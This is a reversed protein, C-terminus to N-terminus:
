ARLAVLAAALTLPVLLVGLRSYTAISPAARAARAARLWLFASLSGSVALNPGLDLGLLLAQAHPAPQASFLAAAPLNNLLVSGGAAIAATAWAGSAALLDAPGNWSRAITGLGVAVAFLLGLVHAELRPRLRRFGAAALGVALVPLAANRLALEAAGAALAAAAGLGLHLPPPEIQGSRGEELRYAVALV